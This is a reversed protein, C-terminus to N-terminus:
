HSASTDIASDVAFASLFYKLLAFSYTCLLPRVPQLRSFCDYGSAAVQFSFMDNVSHSGNPVTSAITFRSKKSVPVRVRDFNRYPILQPRNRKWGYSSARIPVRSLFPAM